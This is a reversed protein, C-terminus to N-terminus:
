LTHRVPISKKGFLDTLSSYFGADQSRNNASFGDVPLQYPKSNADLMIQMGLLLSQRGSNNPALFNSKQKKGGASYRQHANEQGGGQV